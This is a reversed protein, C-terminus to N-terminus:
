NIPSYKSDVIPNQIRDIALLLSGAEASYWKDKQLGKSNFTNIHKVYTEVRTVDNVTAAAYSIITWPFDSYTTGSAWSGFNRNFKTYVKNAIESDPAIVRFMAPYLQCVADAYFKSLDPEGTGNAGKNWRFTTGNYLANISETNKTLFASFDVGNNIVGNEKLWVAAKLGMNVECNDMLYKVPYDLKAISLYDNDDSTFDTPITFQETDITNIMASAVLSIDDKKEQLWSKDEDSLKALEMIIELFTAAYSDVSDYTGNTTETEGYYDYVSGIIEPKGTHLNTNTKNLKSLYWTIYKKVVAINEAAPNKLLALVAFNSFYPCIRSNSQENDKIAGSAIQLSRIYALQNKKVADYVRDMESTTEDGDGGEPTDEGPILITPPPATSTDGCASFTSLSLTTFLVVM